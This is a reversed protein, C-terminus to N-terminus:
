MVNSATCNPLEALMSLLATDRQSLGSTPDVSDSLAIGLRCASLHHQM